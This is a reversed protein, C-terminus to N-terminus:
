ENPHERLANHLHDMMEVVQDDVWGATLTEFVLRNVASEFEGVPDRGDLRLQPFAGVFRHLLRGTIAAATFFQPVGGKALRDTIEHSAHEAETRLRARETNAAFNGGIHPAVVMEIHRALGEWLPQEGEVPRFAAGVALALAPYDVVAWNYLCMGLTHLDTRVSAVPAAERGALMGDAYFMWILDAALGIGVRTSVFRGHRRWQDGQLGYSERMVPRRAADPVGLDRVIQLIREPDGKAEMVTQAHATPHGGPAGELQRLLAAGAELRSRLTRHATADAFVSPAAPIKGALIRDRLDDVDM